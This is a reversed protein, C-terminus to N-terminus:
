QTAEVSHEGTGQDSTEKDGGEQGGIESNGLRLPNPGLREIRDNMEQFLGFGERQYEVLPDRGAYGRLGIGERLFDMNYLHDKWKADIVQLLVTFNTSPTM